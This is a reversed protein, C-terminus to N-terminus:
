YWRFIGSSRRLSIRAPMLIGLLVEADYGEHFGGIALRASPRLFKNM